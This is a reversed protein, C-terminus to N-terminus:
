LSQHPSFLVCFLSPRRTSFHSWPLLFFHFPSLYSWLFLVFVLNQVVLCCLFSRDSGTGWKCSVLFGHSMSLIFCVSLFNLNYPLSHVQKNVLQTQPWPLFSAARSAMSPINRQVMHHGPLGWCLAWSKPRKSMRNFISLNKKEKKRAIKPTQIVEPPSSALTMDQCIDGRTDLMQYVHFMVGLSEIPYFGEEFLLIRHRSGRTEILRVRTDKHQSAHGKGVCVGVYTTLRAAVM